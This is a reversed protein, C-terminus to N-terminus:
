KLSMLAVPFPSLLINQQNTPLLKKNQKQKTTKRRKDEDQLSAFQFKRAFIAEILSLFM